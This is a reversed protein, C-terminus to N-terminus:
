GTGGGGAGGSGGGTINNNNSGSFFSGVGGLAAVALNGLQSYMQAQLQQNLLSQSIQANMASSALSLGRNQSNEAASLSWSAQDQMQQWENNLATQNMNFLNQVNAQTAANTGATNATNIARQWQVNSQDVLLQNQSNFENVQNDMNENFQDMANTQQANFQTMANGQSANYQAINTALQQFYQNNQTQNQSNFQAAANTAAQNSLLTQQLNSLNQSNINAFVQANQEAMPLETNLIASATANGAMTSSGLGLAAMQQNAATVATRAWLPVGNADTPSNQNIDNFQNQVLSNPDVSGQAAGTQNANYTTYQSGTNLTNNATQTQGIQAGHLGPTNISNYNLNNNDQNTIPQYGYQENQPLKGNGGAFNYMQDQINQGTQDNIINHYPPASSPISALGLQTPDTNGGMVANQASIGSGGEGQNNMQPPDPIPQGTQPDLTSM